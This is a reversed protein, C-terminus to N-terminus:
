NHNGCAFRKLGRENSNSNVNQFNLKCLDRDEISQIIFYIKFKLKLFKLRLTNLSITM